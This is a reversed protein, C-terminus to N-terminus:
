KIDVREKGFLFTPSTERATNMLHELERLTDPYIMSLDKTESIDNELNFLEMHTKELDNVDLRLAKWNGKRIAQKGGQEHFEWYLYQHKQQDAEGQLTPYFSIGDGKRGTEAGIIESFTPVFDWFASLHNTKGPKVKGAWHVILPVRIGGEYLDRKYGRFAANSNFYDPNAGGEIHPGNDSTFVIITNNYVGSKKLAEVIEGVQEDLL